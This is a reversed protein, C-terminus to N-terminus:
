KQDCVCFSFMIWVGNETSHSKSLCGLSIVNDSQYIGYLYSATDVQGMTTKVLFLWSSKKKLCKKFYNLTM